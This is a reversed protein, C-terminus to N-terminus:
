KGIIKALWKLSRGDSNINDLRGFSQNSRKTSKFGNINYNGWGQISGDGSGKHLEFGIDELVRTFRDYARAQRFIYGDTAIYIAGNSIALTAIDHLVAQVTRWLAPNFYPNHFKVDKVYHGKVGTMLHSRTVGILSNRAVKWIALRDAVPRLPFEGIGRPWVCDITLHRYISHYAGCIDAYFLEGYYQGRYFMPPNIDLLPFSRKTYRMNLDPYHRKLETRAAEGPTMLVVEGDLNPWERTCTIDVYRTQLEPVFISNQGQIYYIEDTQLSKEITELEDKYLYTTQKM